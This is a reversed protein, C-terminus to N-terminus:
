AGPSSRRGSAATRALGTHQNGELRRAEDVCHVKATVASNDSGCSFIREKGCQSLFDRRLSPLARGPSRKGLGGPPQLSFTRKGMGGPVSEQPRAASPEEEKGRSEVKEPSSICCDHRRATLPSQKASSDNTAFNEKDGARTKSDSGYAQWPRCATLLPSDALAARGLQSM